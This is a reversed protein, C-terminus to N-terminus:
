WIHVYTSYKTVKAKIDPDMHRMKVLMRVSQSGDGCLSSFVELAADRDEEAVMGDTWSTGIWTAQGASADGLMSLMAKNCLEVEGSPNLLLIPSELVDLVEELRRLADSTAELDGVAERHSSISGELHKAREAIDSEYGVVLLRLAQIEREAEEAERRLSEAESVSETTSKELHSANGWAEELQKRVKRYDDEAQSARDEVARLDRRLAEAEETHLWGSKADLERRITELRAEAQLAIGKQDRLRVDEQEVRFAVELGLLCLGSVNGQNDYRPSLSLMLPVPRSGPLPTGSAGNRSARGDFCVASGGQLCQAMADPLSIPAKEEAQLWKELSSGLLERKSSGLLEEGKMNAQELVGKLDTVWMAAGCGELMARLLPASPRGPDGDYRRATVLVSDVYLDKSLVPSFDVITFIEGEPHLFALVANKTELGHAAKALANEVLERWEPAVTGHVFSGRPPAGKQKPFPDAQLLRAATEDVALLGGQLDVELVANPNRMGRGSTGAGGDWLLSVLEARKAKEADVAEQSATLDRWTLRAGISNGTWPAVTVEYDRGDLASLLKSTDKKKRALEMAQELSAPEAGGLLRLLDEGKANAKSSGWHALDRAAQNWELLKGDKGVAAVAVRMSDLLDRLGDNKRKHDSKEEEAQFQLMHILEDREGVEMQLKKVKAGCEELEDTKDKLQVELSGKGILQEKLDDMRNDLSQSRHHKKEPTSSAASTLGALEKRMLKVEDEFAREAQKLRAEVSKVEKEKASYEPDMRPTGSRPTSPPGGAKGRTELMEVHDLAQILAQESAEWQRKLERLEEPSMTFSGAQYAGHLESEDEEAAHAAQRAAALAADEATGGGGRPTQPLPPVASDPRSGRPTPPLPVDEMAKKISEYSASKEKVDEGLITLAEEWKGGGVGPTAAELQLLIEERRGELKKEQASTAVTAAPLRPPPKPSAKGISSTPPSTAAAAGGAPPLAKKLKAAEKTTTTCAKELLKLEKEKEKLRKEAASHDSMPSMEKMVALGERDKEVEKAKKRFADSAEVAEYAKDCASQLEASGGGGGGGSSSSSSSGGGSGGGQAAKRNAIADQDTLVVRLQKVLISPARPDNLHIQEVGPGQKSAAMNLRWKLCHCALVRGMQRRVAYGMQVLGQRRREEKLREKPNLTAKEERYNMRWSLCHCALVKGMMHRFAYSMALLGQRKKQDRIEALSEEGLTKLDEETQKQRKQLADKAAFRKENRWIFIRTAIEGQALLVMTGGILRLAGRKMGLELDSKAALLDQTSKEHHRRQIEVQNEVLADGTIRVNAAALKEELEEVLQYQAELEELTAALTHSGEVMFRNAPAGRVGRSLQINAQELKAESHRLRAEWEEEVIRHKEVEDLRANQLKKQVSLASEATSAAESLTAEAEKAAARLQDIEIIAAEATNIEREKSSLSAQLFSKEADVDVQMQRLTANDQEAADRAAEAAKLQRTLGQVEGRLREAAVNISSSRLDSSPDAAEPVSLPLPPPSAARPLSAALRTADTLNWLQMTGTLSSSALLPSSLGPVEWTPWSFDVARGQAELRKVLRMGPTHWIFLALECSAAVFAGDRSFALQQINGGGDSNPLLRGAEGALM